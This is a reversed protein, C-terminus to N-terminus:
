IKSVLYLEEKARTIAVYECNKEAQSQGFTMTYTLFFVRKAEGGKATHVTMLSIANDASKNEFLSKILDLLEEVTRKGESLFTLCEVKDIVGKYDRNKAKLRGIEVKGWHDLWSLFAPINKKKSHKILGTLSPGLDKGKINAPIKRKWLALCHKVLPANTRSLLFDGPKILDIVKSETIHFISGDKAGPAYTIDPVLKQSRFIISKACRYSIPLKLVKANLKKQLKEIGNLQAGAFSYLVQFTDGFGIIRGTKKCASLALHLQSPVLDQLEDILVYDYQEVPLNLIFPFFVMDDFDVADKKLKCEGLALIVNTIFADRELSGPTIDYDDMLEDIKAPTDVILGKCLSVCKKMEFITEYDDREKPNEKYKELLTKIIQFSKDKDLKVKGLSKRIVKFGFSHLTSIELNSYNPAREQLELAIKKNFAVVLTKKDAPIHKIAEIL